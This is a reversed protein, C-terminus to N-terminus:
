GNKKVTDKKFMMVSSVKISAATSIHISETGMQWIMELSVVIFMEKPMGSHEKAKQKTSIGTEKTIPVTLGINFGMGMGLNWLTKKTTLLIEQTGM